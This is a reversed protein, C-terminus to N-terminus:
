GVKFNFSGKIRHQDAAVVHWTLRYTGAALARPLVATMTSGDFKTEFGKIPMDGHNPMGPMSTMVIEMGSLPAVLKESFRLTIQEVKSARADAAPTSSVLKPHAAAPQIPAIGAVIFALLFAIKKFM